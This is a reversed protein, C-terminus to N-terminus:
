VGFYIVIMSGGYRGTTIELTDQNLAVSEIKYGSAQQNKNIMEMLSTKNNSSRSFSYLINSQQTSGGANFLVFLMGRKYKSVDIEMTENAGIVEQNSLIQVYRKSNLENIATVFNKATTELGSYTKSTLKNLIADALKDYNIKKTDESDEMLFMDGSAPITKETLSAFNTEGSAAMPMIENTSQETVNTNEM